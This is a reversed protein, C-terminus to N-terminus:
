MRGTNRLEARRRLGGARLDASVEPHDRFWAAREVTDMGEPMKPLTGTPGSGGKGVHGASLERALDIPSRAAKAKLAANERRLRDVESEAVAASAVVPPVPAPVPPASAAVTPEAVAVKARGPNEAKWLRYAHEIGNPGQLGSEDAIKRMEDRAALTEMGPHSTIWTEAAAIRTAKAQQEEYPHLFAKFGQRLRSQTAEDISDRMAARLKAPDYLDEDSLNDISLKEPLPLQKWDESKGILVDLPAHGSSLAAALQAQGAPDDAGLPSGPTPAAVPTPPPAAREAALKRRDEALAQSGQTFKKRMAQGTRKVEDPLALMQERTLGGTVDEARYIPDDIESTLPDFSAGAGGAPTDVAPAASAAPTEVVPAAEVM